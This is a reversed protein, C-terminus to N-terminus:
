LSKMEIRSRTDYQNMKWMQWLELRQQVTPDSEHHTWRLRDVENELCDCAQEAFRCIETWYFHIICSHHTAEFFYEELLSEPATQQSLSTKKRFEAQSLGGLRALYPEKCRAHPTRGDTELITAQVQEARPLLPHIAMRDWPVLRSLGLHLNVENSPERCKLLQHLSRSSLSLSLHDFFALHEVIQTIIEPPLRTLIPTCGKSQSRLATM